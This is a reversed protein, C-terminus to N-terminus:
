LNYLIPQAAMKHLTGNEQHGRKAQLHLCNQLKQPSNVFVAHTTKKKTVIM